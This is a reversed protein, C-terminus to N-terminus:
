FDLISPDLILINLNLLNKDRHNTIFTFCRFVLIENNVSTCLCLSLEPEQVYRLIQMKKCWQYETFLFM